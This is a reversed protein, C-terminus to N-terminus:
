PCGSCEGMPTWDTNSHEWIDMGHLYVVLAEAATVSGDGSVAGSFLITAQDPYEFFVTFDSGDGTIPASAEGPVGHECYKVEAGGQLSEQQWFCIQTEIPSGEPRANSSEDISGSVKYLGGIQPPSDGYNVDFDDDQVAAEVAPDDVLDDAQQSGTNTGNDPQADGEGPAVDELERGGLCYEAYVESNTNWCRDVEDCEVGLICEMQCDSYGSFVAEDPNTCNAACDLGASGSSGTGLSGFTAEPPSAGCQDVKTCVDTCEELNAVDCSALVVVAALGVGMRAVRM